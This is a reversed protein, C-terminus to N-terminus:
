RRNAAKPRPDKGRTRTRAFEGFKYGVMKETVLVEIFKKGNQVKFTKSVFTPLITSSRSFVEYTKNKGTEQGAHAESVEKQLNIDVFARKFKRNM